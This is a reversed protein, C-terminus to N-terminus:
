EIFTSVDSIYPPVFVNYILAKLRFLYTDMQKISLSTQTKSKKQSCSVAIHFWFWFPTSNSVLTLSKNQRCLFNLNWISYQLLRM